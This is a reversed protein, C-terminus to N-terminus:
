ASVMFLLLNVQIHVAHLLRHVNDKVLVQPRHVVFRREPNAFARDFGRAIARAAAARALADTAFARPTARFMNRPFQDFLLILALRGSPTGAWDDHDGAAAANVLSAFRKRMDADVAADKSWWLKRQTQATATDDTGTGFWFDLV